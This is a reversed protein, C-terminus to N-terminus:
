PWELDPLCTPSSQDELGRLCLTISKPCPGKGTQTASPLLIPYSIDFSVHSLNICLLPHFLTNQATCSNFAPSPKQLSQSCVIADEQYGHIWKSIWFCTYAPNNCLLALTSCYSALWKLPSACLFLYPTITTYRLFGHVHPGMEGRQQHALEVLGLARRGVEQLHGPWSAISCDPLSQLWM